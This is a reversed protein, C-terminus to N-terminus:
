SKKFLKKFNPEINDKKSLIYLRKPWKIGIHPDYYCLTKESEKIRDNTCKYYIKCKKSLCLFGHAFYPPIYISFDSKHSMKISFYKGFTKSNARLDVAVDFIEGDLVTLLKGQPKKIQFHLGRLVNKKSMSMCDFVFNKNLLKKIFVERFYGRSDKHNKSQILVLDKFKTKIIRM